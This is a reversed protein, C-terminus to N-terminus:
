PRRSIYRTSAGVISRGTRIQQRCDPEEGILTPRAHRFLDPGAEVLATVGRATGRWREQSEARNVHGLAAKTAAFLQAAAGRDYGSGSATTREREGLSKLFANVDPDIVRTRQIPM